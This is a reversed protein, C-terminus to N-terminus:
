STSRAWTAWAEAAESSLEGSITRITSESPRHAEPPPGALTAESLFPTWQSDKIKISTGKFEIAKDLKKAGPLKAKKWANVWARTEAVDREEGSAEPSAAAAGVPTGQLTEILNHLAFPTVQGALESACEALVKAYALRAADDAGGPETTELLKQAHSLVARPGEQRLLRSAFVRFREEPSANALVRDERQEHLREASEQQVRAVWASEVREFRGYGSSTKAGIGLHELGLLLLDRAAEVWARHEGELAVLFTGTASLFSVPVPSQMGDPPLLKRSDGAVPQYYDPHHVTMVDAELPTMLGGGHANEDPVWWADHFVVEGGRETTGFLTTASEGDVEGDKRARRWAPDDALLHAASSAVGKLSSGPLVPVGWTRELTCDAEVVGKQGLGVVFRGTCRVAVLEVHWRDDALGQFGAIRERLANRYIAPVKRTSAENLLRSRAAVVDDKPAGANRPDDTQYMVFRDLWLGPHTDPAPRVSELAKRRCTALPM